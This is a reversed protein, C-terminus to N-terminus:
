DVEPKSALALSMQDAIKSVVESVGSAQLRRSESQVSVVIAGLLRRSTLVPMTLVAVADQGAWDHGNSAITPGHAVVPQGSLSWLWGSILPDEEGIEARFGPEGARPQTRCELQRRAVNWVYVGVDDCDVLARVAVAVHAAVADTSGARALTEALRLIVSAQGHQEMAQAVGGATDLAMGAYRAFIELAHREQPLFRRGNGPLAAIRGYDSGRASLPVALWSEPLQAPPTALLREAVERAEADDLGRAHVSGGVEPRLALVLHPVRVERAAGDTIADVAEYRHGSAVLDSVASFMGRVRENLALMQSRLAEVQEASEGLTRGNWMIRFTCDPAGRAVCRDHEVMAPAMGFLVPGEGMLGATCDCLESSYPPCNDAPTFRLVAYGPEVELPEAIVAVSVMAAVVGMQRYLEEPSGLSRCLAALPGMTSGSALDSGLRRAFHPDGTMSTATELLATAEACSLWKGRDLLFGASREVGSRGLLEAVAADGGLEGIRELVM